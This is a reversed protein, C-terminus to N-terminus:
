RQQFTISSVLRPDQHLQHRGYASIMQMRRTVMVSYCLSNGSRLSRTRLFLGIPILGKTGDRLVSATQHSSQLTNHESHFVSTTSLGLTLVKVSHAINM